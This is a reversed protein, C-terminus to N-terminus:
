RRRMILISEKQIAGLMTKTLRRHIWRQLELHNQEALELLYEDNKFEVEQKNIKFHNNGIIIVASRGPKLVRSMESLAKDMDILYKHQRAALNVRGHNLMDKILEQADRPIKGFEASSEKHWLSFAQKYASPPRPNGIMRDNLQSLDANELLLLQAQDNKIYDIATSYSPSTVIADVTGGDLPLSTADCVEIRGNGLNLPIKARLAKFAYVTKIMNWCLDKFLILPDIQRRARIVESVVKGLAAYLICEVAKDSFAGIARRLHEIINTQHTKGQYVKGLNYLMQNTESQAALASITQPTSTSDWALNRTVLEIVEEVCEELYKPAILLGAIKGQATKGCFPNIEVGISELGMLVAEISTTGSGVFPDLVLGYKCTANILAKAMRPHFKGKYPAGWAHTIYLKVETRTEFFDEIEKFAPSDPFLPYLKHGDHAYSILRDINEGLREVQRKKTKAVSLFVVNKMNELFFTRTIIRFLVWKRNDAETQFVSVDAGIKGEPYLHPLLNEPPGAGELVAYIEKTYALRAVLASINTFEGQWLFGHFGGPALHWTILDLVGNDTTVFYSFPPSMLLQVVNEVRRPKSLLGEIELEALEVETERSLNDFLKFFYTVTM